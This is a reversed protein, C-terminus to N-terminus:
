MDGVREGGRCIGRWREGRQMDREVERRKEAYGWGGREEERCIGRWWEGRRRNDRNM